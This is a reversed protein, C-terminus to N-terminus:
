RPTATAAATATSLASCPLGCATLVCTHNCCNCVFSPPPPRCCGGLGGGWDFTVRAYEHRPVWRRAIDETCAGYEMALVCEPILEGANPGMIWAGLIKDTAKDSIFKVQPIRPNSHVLPATLCPPNAAPLCCAALCVASDQM